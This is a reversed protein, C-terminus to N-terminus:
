KKGQVAEIFVDELRSTTPVLSEISFGERRLDDIKGNAEERSGL